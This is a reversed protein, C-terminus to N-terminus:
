SWGRDIRNHVAGVVDNEGLNGMMEFQAVMPFLAQAAVINDLGEPLWEEAPLTLDTFGYGGSAGDRRPGTLRSSISAASGSHTAAM